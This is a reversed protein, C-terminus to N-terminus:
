VLEERDVPLTRLRKGSAAFIANLVAPALAPVGPEGMGGMPGDDEIFHISMEPVENMRVLEMEDFNREQIQGDEFTLKGYKIASIGWFIAGEIQNEALQPNVVLGAGVFANVKTVRFDGGSVEVEVVEVVVTSGFKAVAIGRGTNAPLSSSWDLIEGVAELLRVTRSLISGWYDDASHMTVARRAHELRFVYPDKGALHAMEDIFGEESFAGLHEVVSRWAGVAVPYDLMNGEVKQDKLGYPLFGPHLLWWFHPSGTVAYSNQVSNMEGNENLSGKWVSREYPHFFDHQTDDERSWTVKVPHKAGRAVLAAEVIFDINARRGFSGGAPCSHITIEEEPIGLAAAIATSGGMPNQTSTWVEVMDGDVVATANLPELAMHAQFNSEYVAEHTKEASAFVTGPDGYDSRVESKVYEEREIRAAITDMNARGNEGLDWDVEVLNRAKFAKWTSDAVVVVGPKHSYFPDEIKAVGEIAFVDVVGHLALAAEARFGKLSGGWVPCRIIAAYKMGPLTKNIGYEARGASLQNNRANPKPHGIIKFEKPDRLQPDTPIPMTVALDALEHFAVSQGSKSHQVLGESAVLESVPVKWRKSAAQILMERVTAGATRMPGWLSHVSSSGGTTGGQPTKYFPMSRANLSKQSVTVSSWKAGLEEAFLMALGSPASQGMEHKGLELHITGDPRLEAFFWPSNAPDIESEKASAGQVYFGKLALGGGALGAIKLFSRRDM